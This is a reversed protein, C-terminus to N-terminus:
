QCVRPGARHQTSSHMVCLTSQCQRCSHQKAPGIRQLWSLWRGPWCTSLRWRTLAKRGNSMENWHQAMISEREHGHACGQQASGASHQSNLRPTKLYAAALNSLLTSVTTPLSVLLALANPCCTVARGSRCVAGPLRGNAREATTHVDSSRHSASCYTPRDVSRDIM